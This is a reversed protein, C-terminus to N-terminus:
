FCIDPCSRGPSIRRPVENFIFRLTLKMSFSDRCSDESFVFIPVAEGWASSRLDSFPLELPNTASSTNPLLLESSYLSCRNLFLRTKTQRRQERNRIANHKSISITSNELYVRVKEIAGRRPLLPHHPSALFYWLSDCDPGCAGKRFYCTTSWMAM